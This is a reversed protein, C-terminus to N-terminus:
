QFQINLSTTILVAPIAFSIGEVGDGILKANIIGILQGNKDVMPGGSNGPSVSADTQIIKTGNSQKRVSSIIGKSLTQSLDEATPTGIAYIDKGIGFVENETISFPVLGTKGIKLLAIDADKNQQVITAKIKSGDHLIVQLDSSDAVVHYNTILYGDESIFFGSGHGKGTKVTATAGVAEQLNSVFKTPLKINIDALVEIDSKDSIKVANSFKSSSMLTYLGSELADNLVVDYEPDEKDVVFEGSELQITDSYIVNKYIDLIDWKTNVTMKCFGLDLRPHEINLIKIGSITANLYLNERYSGKLAFGSTDVFGSKKLIKNIEKSFITNELKIDKSRNWPIYFPEKSKYYDKTTQMASRLESKSAIISIKNLFVEKMTPDRKITPKLPINLDITEPYSWLKYDSTGMYGAISGTVLTTLGFSLVAVQPGVFGNAVIASITGTPLGFVLLNGYFTTYYLGSKKYPILVRYEPKYGKKEIRIQIEKNNRIIRYKDDKTTALSDNFSITSLSDKKISIYQNKPALFGLSCNTLLLPLTIIFLHKFFQNM